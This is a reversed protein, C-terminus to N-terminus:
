KDEKEKKTCKMVENKLYIYSVWTSIFVVFLAGYALKSITESCLEMVGIFVWVCLMFIDYLNKKIFKM